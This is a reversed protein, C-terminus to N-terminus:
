PEEARLAGGTDPINSLEEKWRLPNHAQPGSPSRVPRLGAGQVGAGQRPGWCWAKRAFGPQGPRCPGDGSALAGPAAVHRQHETHSPITGVQGRHNGLASAEMSHRPVSFLFNERKWVAGPIGQNESPACALPTFTQVSPAWAVDSSGNSHEEIQSTSSQGMQTGLLCRAGQPSTHAARRGRGWRLGAGDAGTWHPSLVRQLLCPSMQDMSVLAPEQFSLHCLLHSGKAYKLSRVGTPRPPLVKPLLRGQPTWRVKLLPSWLRTSWFLSASLSPM